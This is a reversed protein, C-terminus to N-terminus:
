ARQRLEEDILNRTSELQEAITYYFRLTFRRDEEIARLDLLLRNKEKSSLKLPLSISKIGGEEDFVIQSAIADNFRDSYREFFQQAAYQEEIKEILKYNYEYMSIIELRLTDSTVIDLGQSKLSEYGSTNQISIFDRILIRKYAALSDIDITENRILKRFYIAAKVGYEHGMINLAVDASDLRFGNSVEKLINTEAHRSKRNDNWNNLAFASLVAIFISLFEVFFKGWHIRPRAKRPSAQDEREQGNPNTAM